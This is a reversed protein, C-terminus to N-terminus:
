KRVELRYGLKYVTKIVDEWGLKQRISSIHVDVTRTNGGFDYGWAKELLKERSLAINRNQILTEILTFEQPTFDVLAGKFYVQRGSLDVEVCGLAFAKDLKQTRRLVSEVRAQLEIMEFPKVIYDDAGLSLGNLKHQLGDKATIFIVPEFSIRKLVEFGDIYPLMVDLLVLDFSGELVADIAKVGDFVQEYTHGVLKLNKAILDNIDQDDEVILIHAM